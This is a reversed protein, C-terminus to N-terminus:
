VTRVEVVGGLCMCGCGCDLLSLLYHWSWITKHQEKRRCSFSICLDNRIKMLSGNFIKSEKGNLKIWVEHEDELNFSSHLQCVYPGMDAEQVNEIVLVYELIEEKSSKQVATSFKGSGLPVKEGKFSWTVKSETDPSTLVSCM